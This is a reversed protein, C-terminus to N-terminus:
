GYRMPTSINNLHAINDGNQTFKRGCNYLKAQGKAIHCPKYDFETAGVDFSPKVFVFLVLTIMIIMWIREM